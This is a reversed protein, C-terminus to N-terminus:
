CLLHGATTADHAQWLLRCMLGIVYSPVHCFVTLLVQLTDGGLSSLRLLQLPRLM